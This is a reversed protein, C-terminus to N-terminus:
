VPAEDAPPRAQSALGNPKILDKYTLRKAAMALTVMAMQALTDLDRINQKGAFEDVYRQLHKPSFCHFVGKHARKLMSWFSEIGQTHIHGDVYEGVSHNVVGHQYEPM